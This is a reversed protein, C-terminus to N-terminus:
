ATGIVILRLKSEYPVADQVLMKSYVDGELQVIFKESSLVSLRNSYETVTVALNDSSKNFGGRGVELNPKIISKLTEFIKHKDNDYFDIDIGTIPSRITTVPISVGPAIPVEISNIHLATYGVEKATFYNDVLNLQTNNFAVSWRIPINPTFSKRLSLLNLM